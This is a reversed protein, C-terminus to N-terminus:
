VVVKARLRKGRQGTCQLYHAGCRGSAPAHAGTNQATRCRWFADRRSNPWREIGGRQRGFTTSIRSRGNCRSTGRRSRMSVRMQGYTGCPKWGLHTLGRRAHRMEAQIPELPFGGGLM